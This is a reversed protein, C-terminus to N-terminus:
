PAVPPEPRGAPERLPGYAARYSPPGVLPAVVSRLWAPLRATRSFRDTAAQVHEVRARRRRAFELGARDWADRDQLVEALALGDEVALAAGQAWVPASAHAADGVLVVRGTTWVAPNIEELPSHLPPDQSEEAAALATRVVEPFGRFLARTRAFDTTEDRGSVWGYVRGPVMPILLVTGAPGTWAVWCDVGPDTAVFRWSSPALISPRARRRPAVHGRVVSHVGDAGVLVGGAHVTGDPLQVETGGDVERVTRVAVGLTVTGPSM